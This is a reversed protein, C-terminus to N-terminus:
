SRKVLYEQRLEDMPNIRAFRVTTCPWPMSMMWVARFDATASLYCRDSSVLYFPDAFVHFLIYGFYM